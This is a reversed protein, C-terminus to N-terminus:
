FKLDLLFQISQTDGLFLDAGVSNYTGGLVLNAGVLGIPRWEFNLQGWTFLNPAM